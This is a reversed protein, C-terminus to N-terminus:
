AAESACTNGSASEEFGETKGQDITLVGNHVHQRGMKVVDGRRQGTHEAAFALRVKTGIPYGAEFRSRTDPVNKIAWQRSRRGPSASRRIM